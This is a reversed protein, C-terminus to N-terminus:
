GGEGKVWGLPFAGDQAGACGRLRRAIRGWGLRECGECFGHNESLGGLLHALGRGVLVRYDGRCETCVVKVVTAVSEGLSQNILQGVM